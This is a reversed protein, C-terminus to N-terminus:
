SLSHVTDSTLEYVEGVETYQGETILGSVLFCDAIDMVTQGRRRFDRDNLLEVLKITLERAREYERESEPVAHVAMRYPERSRQAMIHRVEYSFPVQARDSEIM